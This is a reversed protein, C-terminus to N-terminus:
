PCRAQILFWTTGDKAIAVQRSSAATSLSGFLNLATATNTAGLFTVMASSDVPWAATGFTAMRFVKSAPAGPVIHEYTLPAAGKTQREFGIIARGIREGAGRTFRVFRRGADEAM